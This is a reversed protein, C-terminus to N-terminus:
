SRRCIGRRTRFPPGGYALSFGCWSGLSGAVTSSGDPISPIIRKSDSDDAVEEGPGSSVNGSPLRSGGGSKDVTSCSMDGLFPCGIINLEGGPGASEYPVVTMSFHAATAM